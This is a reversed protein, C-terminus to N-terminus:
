FNVLGAIQSPNKTELHVLHNLSLHYKRPFIYKCPHLDVRIHLHYDNTNVQHHIKNGHLVHFEVTFQNTNGYKQM